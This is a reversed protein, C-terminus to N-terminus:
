LLKLQWEEELIKKKENFVDDEVLEYGESGDEFFSIFMEKKPVNKRVWNYKVNRRKIELLGCEFRKQDYGVWEWMRSSGVWLLPTGIGCEVRLGVADYRNYYNKFDSNNIISLLKILKWTTYNPYVRYQSTSGVFCGDVLVSYWHIRPVTSGFYANPPDNYQLNFRGQRADSEFINKIIEKM